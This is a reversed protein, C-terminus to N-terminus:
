QGATIFERTGAGQNANYQEQIGLHQRFASASAELDAAAAAAQEQAIAFEAEAKEMAAAAVSAKEMSQAMRVVAEGSVGGAQAASVALETSTVMQKYAAADQRCSAARGEAVTVNARFQQAGQVAFTLIGSLGTVEAATATMTTGEQSSLGPYRGQLMSNYTARHTAAQDKVSDIVPSLDIRQKEDTVATGEQAPIQQHEPILPTTSPSPTQQSEWHNTRQQQRYRCAGCVAGDFVLAGGCSPCSQTGTPDTPDTGFQQDTRGNPQDVLVPEPEAPVPADPVVEGPVVQPEPPVRDARSQYRKELRAFARKVRNHFNGTARRALLSGHTWYDHLTAPPRRSLREVRRNHRRLQMEWSDDWLQQRYRKFASPTQSQRESRRDKRAAERLHARKMRPSEKGRVAFSVDVAANGIARVTVGSLIMALILMEIM